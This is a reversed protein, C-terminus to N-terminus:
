KLQGPGLDFPMYNDADFIDVSPIVEVKSGSSNSLWSFSVEREEGSLLQKIKYKNIGLLRSGSKLAFYFDVSWFNYPTNNEAKFIMASVASGGLSSAPNLQIDNITIDTNAILYQDVSVDFDRPDIRRWKLNMISVSANSPRPGDYLFEILYKKEGPLMFESKIETEQQNIVYFYDFTAYWDKNLNKVEVALDSTNKISPLINIDGLVLDQASSSLVLNHSIKPITILRQAVIDDEQIGRYIYYGFGYIIYGWSLVSTIILIIILIRRLLKQNEVWRLGWNLQWPKPGEVPKYKKLASEINNKNNQQKEEKPM